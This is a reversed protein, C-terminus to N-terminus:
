QVGPQEASHFRVNKMECPILSYSALFLCLLAVMYEACPTPLCAVQATDHIMGVLKPPVRPNGGLHYSRPVRPYEAFM